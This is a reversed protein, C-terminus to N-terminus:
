AAEAPEPQPVACAKIQEAMAKYADVETLAGDVSRMVPEGKENLTPIQVDGTARSRDIDARLAAEHEPSTVMQSVTKPELTGPLEEPPKRSLPTPPYDAVTQPRDAVASLIARAHEDNSAQSVLKAVKLAEDRPMPYGARWAIDAIGEALREAHQEASTTLGAEGFPLEPEAAQAAAIRQRETEELTGRIFAREGMLQDLTAEHSAFLDLPEGGPGVRAEDFLPRSLRGEVDVPRGAFIDDIAKGLAERHAVEGDLGPLVNSSAVNAESEVVNGADRISRPWEGTKARTWVMGAGKLAGGTVGGFAAAGLINRAPEASQSYGPQVQDRYPSGIAEIAAQTGGAIGAWAMATAFLGLGEPAALPAVVLNVPDTATGAAGGLFEGFSGGLTKERSSMEALDARAMKSKAVARRDLDDDTLPEIKLDPNAANLKAIKDNVFPMLLRPDQLEWPADAFREGTRRTVDDLYDGFAAMRANQGAVSQGFLRNENWAAAFTDTFNTPLQPANHQRVFADTDAQAQGFMDLPM